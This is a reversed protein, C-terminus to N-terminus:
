PTLVLRVRRINSGPRPDEIGPKVATILEPRERKAFNCSTAGRNTSLAVDTTRRPLSTFGTCTITKLNSHKALWREIEARMRPTLVRSNQEFGGVILEARNSSSKGRFNFHRVLKLNGITSRIEVDVFGTLGGPLRVRLENASQGLMEVKKGGVYVETVTDFHTGFLSVRATNTRPAAPLSAVHTLQQFSSSGGSSPIVGTITFTRSVQNAAAYSGSAAQNASVVCTGNQNWSITVTTNPSAYSTTATCGSTGSTTITVQEGSTSTSVVVVSGAEEADSLTPLTISNALIGSVTFARSVQAAPAYNGSAGQNAALLCTGNANWTITVTTNPNAYSTSVTCGSTGSATVSVQAGSTSTAVVTTSGAGTADSLAPLTISNPQDIFVVPDVYMNSGLVLGGTADYSGNVFRFRYLGSTAIDGSSTTLAQLRGSSHALLSHNSTSPVPIDSLNAVSVLFAYIEYDDGNAAAAWNFSLSQGAQGYFPESYIEPGFVSCYSQVTSGGVVVDNNNTDCDIDSRLNVFGSPVNLNAVASASAFVEGSFTDITSSPWTSHGAEHGERQWGPEAAYDTKDRDTTYTYQSNAISDTGSVTFPATSSRTILKAQTRSALSGLVVRLNSAPGADTAILTPRYTYGIATSSVGGVDVVLDKRGVTRVNQSRTPVTATIETDSVVTFSAVNVGDITVASAGTLGSGTITIVNGGAATGSDPSVSTVAPTTASSVLPVSVIASLALTAALLISISSKRPMSSLKHKGSM